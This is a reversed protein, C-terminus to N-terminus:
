HHGDFTVCSTLAAASIWYITKRIDGNFLYVGAALVDLVILCCPFIQTPKLIM